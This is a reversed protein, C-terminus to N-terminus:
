NTTDPEATTARESRWIAGSWDVVVGVQNQSYSGVDSTAPASAGLHSANSEHRFFGRASWRQRLQARLGVEVANLADDRGFHYRDTPLSSEYSRGGYEYGADGTVRWRRIRGLEARGRLAAIPGHYTLDADDSPAGAIDDDDVGKAKSARWGGSVDISGRDPLGTFGLTLEGQHTKSDRERFDPVYHRNEFQYALEIGTGRAIRQGWSASVIQLDFQARRELSAGPVPPVYDDAVLQRLYYHPLGYYGVSLRREGRWAERWGASISRFDATPNSGHFDGEGKLRLVHHRGHGADADWGLAIFPNWTVDDLAQISFRDPRTGSEFLTRQDNSYQLLNTDYIAGLGLSLNLKQGASADPPRLVLAALAVATAIGISANRRMMANM